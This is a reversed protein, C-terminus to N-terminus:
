GSISCQIWTYVLVYYSLSPLTYSLNRAGFHNWPQIPLQFPMCPRIWPPGHPGPDPGGVLLPGGVLKRSPCQKIHRVPQGSIRTCDATFNCYPVYPTYYCRGDPPTFTFVISPQRNVSLPQARTGAYFLPKPPATRHSMGFAPLERDSWQMLCSCPQRNVSMPQVGSSRNGCLVPARFPATKHSVYPLPSEIM